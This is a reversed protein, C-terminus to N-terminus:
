DIRVRLRNEFYAKSFFKRISDFSYKTVIFHVEANQTILALAYKPDVEKSQQQMTETSDIAYLDITQLEEMHMAVAAVRQNQNLRLILVKRMIEFSVFPTEGDINRDVKDFHPIGSKYIIKTSGHGGMRLKELIGFRGGLLAVDEIDLDANGDIELPEM